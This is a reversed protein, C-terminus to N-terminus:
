NCGIQNVEDQKAPSTPLALLIKAKPGPRPPL